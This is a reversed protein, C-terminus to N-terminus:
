DHALAEKVMAILAKANKDLHLQSKEFYASAGDKKLKRRM